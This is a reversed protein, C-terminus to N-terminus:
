STGPTEAAPGFEYDAKDVYYFIVTWDLGRHYKSKVHVGGRSELLIQDDTKWWSGNTGDGWNSVVQWGVILYADNAFELGKERWGAHASKKYTLTTSQILVADSKTYTAFGYLWTQQDKGETIHEDKKPETGVRSLVEFYFDMRAYVDNIDSRLSDAKQRYERRKDADTALKNQSATIGDNVDSFETEVQQRYYEPLSAYGSRIDWLTTYLKRLDVFVEPAVPISRPYSHDITNYHYLKTELKVGQENSKFWHLAEIIKEPTWPAGIPSTGQCGEMFLDVSLNINHDRASATFRASAEAGFVGPADAGFSAKFEDMSKATSSKCTFVAVFRSGRKWGAVFYDGYTDRFKPPDTILQKAEDKLEYHDTEPNIEDYGVCKSEYKALLTIALESFEIKTLYKASASVTVGEINYKGSASAEVERNLESESQIFRYSESSETVKERVVTFPKVATGAVSGTIADIGAAAQFADAWPLGSIVLDLDTRENGTVKTKLRTNQPEPSLENPSVEPATTKPINM